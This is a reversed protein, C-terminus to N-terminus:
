AHKLVFFLQTISFFFLSIELKIVCTRRILGLQVNAVIYNMVPSKVAASIFAALLEMATSVKVTFFSSLSRAPLSSLFFM